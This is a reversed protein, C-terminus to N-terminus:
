SETLKALWEDAAPNVETPPRIGGNWPHRGYELFFPTQGTASHERNNLVFEVTSLWEAWDDQLHDVYARLYVEIEQNVRETQGDMQPHFATSPNANVGIMSYFEKMFRSVFQPGRDSVIKQPVGHDRFVRDRLIRAAGLGTLNIGIGEILTRKTFKDVIVLIANHGRSLPLPGVIDWTIVSWPGDPVPHPHLPATRKTCDPKTRQCTECGQAYQDADKVMGVWWYTRLLAARLKRPGPHGATPLDHEFALVAERAEEPVWTIGGKQWLGMRDRTWEDDLGEPKTVYVASNKQLLTEMESTFLVCVEAEPFVQVPADEEVMEGYDPRQSLADAKTNSKGTHYKIEFDFCQLEGVWRVQRPKLKQPKRFYQLNAHDTWIEIMEDAGILYARWERLARIVALFEKDYMDYNREAATLAKSIYDVVRWTGDMQLQSLVGGTVLNSADTEVKWRGKDQPLALVPASVLALCLDQFAAEEEEDWKWPVKGTLQFLPKARASLNPIHRRLYNLMGNFRQVEKVNRLRPWNRVAAGKAPDHELCNHSIKMGLFIIESKEFECKSLRLCLGNEGFKQLVRDMWYRHTALDEAFVIVDDVYARVHGGAIEEHLVHNMFRQFTAPANQLGFWMVAPKFLGHPTLFACRHQHEPWVQMSPFGGKADIKSYITAGKLMDVTDWILPLPYKDKILYKNLRSYDIIPRLKDKEHKFFFPSTYPSKSPQIRGSALQEDVWCNMDVTEERTLSFLKSTLHGPDTKFEIKIDFDLCSRPLEDWKAESFVSPYLSPWDPTPGSKSFRTHLISASALTSAKPPTLCCHSPSSCTKPCCSLKVEAKAWDIEPNHRKLWDHGLIVMHSQTKGLLFHIWEQHDGVRVLLDMGFRIKGDRNQMGDVNYMTIPNQLPAPELGVKKVWELDMFCNTCGSDILAKM